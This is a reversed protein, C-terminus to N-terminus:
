GKPGSSQLTLSMDLEVFERKEVWDEEHEHVSEPKYKRRQAWLVELKPICLPV